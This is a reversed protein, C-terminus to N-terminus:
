MFTLEPPKIQSKIYKTGGFIVQWVTYYRHEGM